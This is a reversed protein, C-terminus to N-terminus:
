SKRKDFISYDTLLHISIVVNNYNFLRTCPPAPTFNKGIDLNENYNLYTECIMRNKPSDITLM